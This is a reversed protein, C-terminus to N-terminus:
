RRLQEPDLRRLLGGVIPVVLPTLMVCYAVTALTSRLYAAVTIRPDGLLVGEAAFVTVAAAAAMGVVAFPLLVSRDPDDHVLGAAYGVLAYALAVRGLEHDAGLDALLGAAFGTVAGSAPGRSLAFAIVVVLLLDPTAGPLPLRSLVSTQLLLAPLLLVTALVVRAVSM